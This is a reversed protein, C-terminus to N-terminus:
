YLTNPARVASHPPIRQVDKLKAVVHDVAICVVDTREQRNRIRLDLAKDLLAEVLAMKPWVREDLEIWRKSRACQDVLQHSFADKM